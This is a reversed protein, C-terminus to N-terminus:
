QAAASQQAQSAEDIQDFIHDSEGGAIEYCLTGDFESRMMKMGNNMSKYYLKGSGIGLMTSQHTNIQKMKDAGSVMRFLGTPYGQVGTYSNVALFLSDDAASLRYAPIPMLLENKSGDLNCRNVGETTSYYIKNETENVFACYVYDKVVTEEQTGDANIRKLNYGADKDAYYIKGDYPFMFGCNAQSVLTLGSGDPACRHIGRHEIRKVCAFYLEDGSVAFYEASFPVVEEAEGDPLLRRYLANSQQGDTYYLYGDHVMLATAYDDWLMVADGDDPKMWIGNNCYYTCGDGQAVAGGNVINAMDVTLQTAPAYEAPKAMSDQVALVVAVALIIAIVACAAIILWKKKAPKKAAKNEM